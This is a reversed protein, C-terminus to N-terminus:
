HIIGKYAYFEPISFEPGNDTRIIKVHLKHQNEILSVFNIVHQRAESKAKMLTIWTYRSCDDVATLFYSHGHLSQVTLPEWIDFHILDYPHAARNNSITYSLKRQLGDKHEASGTMKMIIKDNIPIIKRYSRFWQVFSCIHDIAGSDIIWSGSSSSHMCHYTNGTSPHGVVVQNSSAHGSSQGISSKQILDMLASFQGQTMPSNDSKINAGSSSSGDDNGYSAVNNASNQFQKQMHPPAGHKKFCNEVTHNTKGCFTCVRAGHKFTNNRVRFKKSDAANIPTQSEDNPIPLQIQREHQIVMSFINNMNPLPDMLLIPSKFTPLPLYLDLEEWLIKFDSFFDTVSKTEKNLNYIEQQLESIRILDGQSFREKLDKWVDLANEMFVISQSISDSVSNMIWSHVLMNYRNWACLSPDFSDAPVPFSGEIFEIKMKGGLARKMSRAWSHYNSGTLKPLVTVFGLGDSPHVFYPSTQDLAPDLPPARPPAM